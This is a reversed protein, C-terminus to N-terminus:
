CPSRGHCPCQLIPRRICIIVSKTEGQAEKLGGGAGGADSDGSVVRADATGKYPFMEQFYSIANVPRSPLNYLGVQRWVIMMIIM